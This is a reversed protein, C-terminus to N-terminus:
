VAVRISTCPNAHFLPVHIHHSKRCLGDGGVCPLAVLSPRGSPCLVSEGADQSTAAFQPVSCPSPPINSAERRRGVVCKRRASPGGKVGEGEGVRAVCVGGRGRGGRRVRGADAAWSSVPPFGCCAEVALDRRGAATEAAEGDEEAEEVVVWRWRWPADAVAGALVAGSWVGGGMQGSGVALQLDRRSRGRGGNRELM